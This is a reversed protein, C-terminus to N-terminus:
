RERVVVVVSRWECASLAAEDSELRDGLLLVGRGMGHSKGRRLHRVGTVVHLAEDATTLEEDDEQDENDVHAPAGDCSCVDHGHIGAARCDEEPVAERYTEGALGCVVVM